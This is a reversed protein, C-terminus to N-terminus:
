ASCWSVPRHCRALRGAARASHLAAQLRQDPLRFRMAPPWTRWRAANGTTAGSRWWRRPSRRAMPASTRSPRRGPWARPDRVPVGPRGPRRAVCGAVVADWDEGAAVTLLVGSDRDPEHRIGRTAVHVSRAPSARTARRGPQQRRRAGATARRARGRGAGRGVVETGRAPKSSVGPPGASACRPTGALAVQEASGPACGQVGDTM